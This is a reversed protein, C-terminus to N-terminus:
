SIFDYKEIEFRGRKEIQYYKRETEDYGLLLLRGHNYVSGDIYYHSKGDYFIQHFMKDRALSSTGIHGAIVTKIFRGTTAPFKWLFIEEGSGWEWYEGAEEDVGAHVYIQEETKYFLEMSLMWKLLDGSNALIMKVAEANKTAYSATQSIELFKRFQEESVLTRFTNFHHNEDSELWSDYSLEEMDRNVPKNFEDIWELFMAEHNGKLVVVKDRGYKNQLDYIYRLVPGSESGYDIYDGLFLLKNNGELDVLDMKEKLQKLCGHIDSMAYIM